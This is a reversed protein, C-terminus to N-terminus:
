TRWRSTGARPLVGPLPLAAAAGQRTRLAPTRHGPETRRGRPEALSGLHVPLPARPRRGAPDARPLDPAPVPHLPPGAGERDTRELPGPPHGGGRARPRHGRPLLRRAPGDARALPGLDDGAGRAAAPRVRLPHRCRHRYPAEPGGGPGHLVRRPQQRLHRPLEGTRAAPHEPGRRAGPGTRQVRALQAGPGPLPGAAAPARRVAVGRVRRPRRRHRTGSRLGGGVRHAPPARSHLGRLAARAPGTGPRQAPQEHAWQEAGGTICARRVAGSPAPRRGRQERAGRSAAFARARRAANASGRLGTQVM